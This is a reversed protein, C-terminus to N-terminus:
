LPYNWFQQQLSECDSKECDSEPEIEDLPGRIQKWDWTAGTGTTLSGRWLSGNAYLLTIRGAEIHFQVIKSTM